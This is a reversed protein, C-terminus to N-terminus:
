GFIGFKIANRLPNQMTKALITEIHFLTEYTELYAKYSGCYFLWYRECECGLISFAISGYYIFPAAGNRNEHDYKKCFDFFNDAKHLMNWYSLESNEGILEYFEELFQLYNNLLLDENINYYIEGDKEYREYNCFFDKTFDKKDLTYRNYQKLVIPIAAGIGRGM